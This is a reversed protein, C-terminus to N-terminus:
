LIFRVVAIVVCITVLSAVFGAMNVGFIDFNFMSTLTNAPASVVASFLNFWSSGDSGDAYGKEFGNNYGVTEGKEYGNNYGEQYQEAGELITAADYGDNYGDEYLTYVGSRSTISTGSFDWVDGETTSITISTAFFDNKGNDLGVITKDVIDSKTTITIGHENQATLTFPHAYAQYVYKEIEFSYLGISVPHKFTIVLENRVHELTVDDKMYEAQIDMQILYPLDRKGTSDDTPNVDIFTDELTFDFKDQAINHKVINGTNLDRYVVNASLTADKFLDAKIAKLGENYADQYIEDKAQEYADQRYADFYEKMGYSVYKQPTNGKNVWLLLHLRCENDLFGMRDNNSVTVGYFTVRSNLDAETVKYSSDFKWHVFTDNLYISESVKIDNVGNENGYVTYFASLYYTQGAVMDPCIDRLTVGTLSAPISGSGGYNEPSNIVIIGNDLVDSVNCLLAGQKNVTPTPHTIVEPNFYNYESLETISFAGVFTPLCVCALVLLVGFLAFFRKIKRKTM